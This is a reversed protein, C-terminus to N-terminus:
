NHSLIVQKTGYGNYNFGTVATDCVIKYNPLRNLSDCKSDPLACNIPLSVTGSGNPNPKTLICNSVSYAAQYEWSMVDRYVLGITDAYIEYGKDYSNYSNPNFISNDTSDYQVVTLTNPFNINGVKKPQNIDTYFYNWTMFFSNPHYVPQNIYTNGFWNKTESIPNVLKNYRLNNEVYELANETPTYFFTNVSIWQQNAPNLHYRYIKYSKRNLNDTIEAAVSDKIIYSNTVFYAGFSRTVTSDLAYIIYKGVKFNTYKQYSAFLTNDNTKKCSSSIVLLIAPLLFFLVFHKRM